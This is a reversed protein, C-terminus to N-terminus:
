VVPKDNPANARLSPPIKNRLPSREQAMRAVEHTAPALGPLDQTQAKVAKDVKAEAVIRDLKATLKQTWAAVERPTMRKPVDVNVQDALAVVSPPTTAAATRQKIRHPKPPRHRPHRGRHPDQGHGRGNHAVPTVGAQRNSAFIAAAARPHVGTDRSVDSPGVPSVRDGSVDVSLPATDTHSNAAPVSLASLAAGVDQEPADGHAVVSDPSSGHSAEDVAVPAEEVAMASMAGERFMTRQEVTVTIRGDRTHTAKLKGFDAFIKPKIM